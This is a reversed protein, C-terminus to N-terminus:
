SQAQAIFNMSGIRQNNAIPRKGSGCDTAAVESRRLSQAWPEVNLRSIAPVHFAPCHVFLLVQARLGGYLTDPRAVM